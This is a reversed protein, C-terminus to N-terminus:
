KQRFQNAYCLSTIHDSYSTTRVWRKLHREARPMHICQIRQLSFICNAIGIIFASQLTLRRRYQRFFSLYHNQTSSICPNSQSLYYEYILSFVYEGSRDIIIIKIHKSTVLETCKGLRNYIRYKTWRAIAMSYLIFQTFSVYSTSFFSKLPHKVKRKNWPSACSHWTWDFVHLVLSVIQHTYSYDIRVNEKMFIM